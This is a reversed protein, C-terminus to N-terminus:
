GFCREDIRLASAAYPADGHVEQAVSGVPDARGGVVRTVDPRPVAEAVLPEGCALAGDEVM